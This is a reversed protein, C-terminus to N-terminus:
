SQAGQNPLGLFKKLARPYSTNPVGDLAMSRVAAVVKEADVDEIAVTRMVTGDVVVSTMESICGDVLYRTRTKRVTVVRVPVSTSTTTALLQDLSLESPAPPSEPLGLAARARAVVSAGLPFPVKLEPRWQELGHADVRELRKIDLLQDRVKVNADTAASVLYIEESHQVGVAHLAKFRAEADGFDPGFTRWEWRPVIHDM